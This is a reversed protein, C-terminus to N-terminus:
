LVPIGFAGPAESHDLHLQQRTLTLAYDSPNGGALNGFLHKVFSIAVKDQVAERMAIVAPIGHHILQEAVGGFGSGDAAVATQCANLTVLLLTPWAALIEAFTEGPVLDAEGASNQLAMVGQHNHWGGHGVFHLVHFTEQQLRTLLNERTANTEFVLEVGNTAALSMLASKIIKQEREFDLKALDTPASVLVLIRLPLGIRLPKIPNPIPLYRSISFQKQTALFGGEDANYLLEWPLQHLQVTTRPDAPDAEIRLRLHLRTEGAQLAGLSRYFLRAIPGTFVADFLEEGLELLDNKELPPPAIVQQYRTLFDPINLQLVRARTTDGSPSAIVRALNPPTLLIDFFETAM